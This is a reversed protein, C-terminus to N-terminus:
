AKGGSIWPHLNGSRNLQRSLKDMLMNVLDQDTRASRGDINITIYIGGGASAVGSPPTIGTASGGLNSALPTAVAVAAAEMQPAGAKLNASLMSVLNGMWEDADSAPGAAAPSHFGLAKWIQSAIGTVADWIKGAGSTIGQVLMNIFNTGSDLAKPGLDEITKLLNNWTDTIPKVIYNDWIGGFFGSVTAWVAALPGAIYTDYASTFIGSIFTWVAAVFGVAAWFATSIAGTVMGWVITAMGVLWQWKAAIWSVATQWATQLWAIGWKVYGVIADIMAKFYYNHQYLWIFLAAISLVPGFIIAILIQIGGRVVGVIAEWAAHVGTVIGQWISAFFGGVAHLGALIGGWIMEFFGVVNGWVGKLWDVIQGWHMIALVIGAVVLAIIAGVLLIPWTAALTAVAANWAAIAWAVFAAVLIGGIAGAVAILVVQLAVLAAHNQQFFHVVNSVWSVLTSIVTILVSFITTLVGSQMVWNGFSAVAPEVNTVLQSVLPMLQQGLKIGFTELGERAQDMKFNFDGQVQSWGQISNRGNQMANSISKVNDEFGNMNSGTLALTTKYGTMGGTIAKLAATAQESGAPFASGVHTEILQLAAPLGQNQLTDTLQQASIGVSEMAKQAGSSPASLSSLLNALNQSARQADLGANTMTALAGGVQPFSVGLSSAIPLVSGMASSLDQMHTKGSSVVTLLGNVAQTSTVNQNAYDTMITTTANAVVGLDAQGVKAGEAADQLTRLSQAGKQGSSDILFLGDTLQKTGEGTKNAVDLAGDGVMKLNSQLEGAGTSLGTIQSEFDGASKTAVVGLVGAAVGTVTAVTGLTGIFGKLVEDTTAAKAGFAELSVGSADVSTAAADSAAAVEGESVAVADLSATTADAAAATEVLAVDVEALADTSAQSSAALGDFGVGTTFATDGLSSLYGDAVEAVDSVEGLTVAVGDLTGGFEKIIATALDQAQLLIREVLDGM